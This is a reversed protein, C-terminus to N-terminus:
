FDISPNYPIFIAPFYYYLPVLYTLLSIKIKANEIKYICILQM